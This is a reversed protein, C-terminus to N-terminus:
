SNGDRRRVLFYTPMPGKGKINVEGRPECEYGDGLAAYTSATVQTRGALSHSEMRSATNVTDGWLDYIFKKQGIVGAVVPGTNLGIRVQLPLGTKDAFRKVAAHMALAMDAASQAHRPNPTPLGAVAMYADGITKIKELGHQEALADFKSFLQNLVLVMQEPSYAESLPTFGVLDAFLVTVQPFSDAITDATHKLRDAIPGPLINLLLRESKEQEIQLLEYQRKLEANLRLNERLTVTQRGIVLATLLGGTLLEVQLRMDGQWQGGAVALLLGYGLAIALFPLALSLRDVWTAVRAPLAAASAPARQRLAALAFLVYAAVWGIDVLGGSAYTGALQQYAYILDAAVFVALGALFWLLAARVAPDPRRLLLAVIGGIAVLDGVPYAALIIQELWDGGGTASPSIVLYWVVMWAATLVILLDLWFKLRDHGSLAAAPLRTLGLVVLPFFALYFLDAPTYPYDSAPLGLVSEMVFWILDGLFYAGIGLGLWLWGRRVRPELAPDAAARQAALAAFLSLPMFTANSILAKLAPDGAGLSSWLSFALVAATALGAVAGWPNRLWTLTM